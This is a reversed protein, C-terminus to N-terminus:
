AVAPIPSAPMLIFIMRLALIEPASRRFEGAHAILWLRDAWSLRRLAKACAPSAGTLEAITVIDHRYRGQKVVALRRQIAKLGFNVGIENSEHQRYLM